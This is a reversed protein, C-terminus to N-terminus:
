KILERVASYFAFYHVALRASFCVFAQGYFFAASLVSFMGPIFHFWFMYFSTGAMEELTTELFDSRSVHETQPTESLISFSFERSIRLNLTLDNKLRCHGQRQQRQQKLQKKSNQAALTQM